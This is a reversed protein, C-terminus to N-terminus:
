VVCMGMKDSNGGGGRGGGRRGAGRREACRDIGLAVLPLGRRRALHFLPRYADFPFASRQEWQTAKALELDARDRVEGAERGAGDEGGAVYEDLASQFQREM